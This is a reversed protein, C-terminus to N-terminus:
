LLYNIGIRFQLGSMNYKIVYKLDNTKIQDETKETPEVYSTNSSTDEYTLQPKYFLYEMGLSLSIHSIPVIDIEFCPSSYFQTNSMSFNDARIVEGNKEDVYNINDFRKFRGVGLRLGVDVSFLNSNYLRYLLPIEFSILEVDVKVGFLPGAGEPSDPKIDPQYNFINKKGYYGNIGSIFPFPNQFQIIINGGYGVFSGYDSDDSNNELSFSTIMKSSFGLLINQSYLTSSIGIILFLSLKKITMM